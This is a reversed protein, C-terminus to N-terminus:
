LSNRASALTKAAEILNPGACQLLHDPFDAWRMAKLRALDELRGRRNAPDTLVLQPPHMVLRELPLVDWMALGSEAAVNRLGSGAMMEDMLTGAGPVLGGGQWVLADVPRAGKSPAAEALAAEIERALAEGRAPHGVAQAVQRVQALSEAITSPVGVSEIKIGVSRIAAQTAPAVHPGLLVIDPRSMVVEEASDRNAPFQRALAIPISTAAPDHSYHSISVIQAHDAVRVLIADICPNMSMVRPLAAAARVPPPAPACGASLM